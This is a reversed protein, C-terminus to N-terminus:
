VTALTRTGSIRGKRMMILSISPAVPFTRSEGQGWGTSPLLPPPSLHLHLSSCPSRAAHVLSPGRATVPPPARPLM